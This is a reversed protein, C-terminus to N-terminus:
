TVIKKNFCLIGNPTIDVVGCSNERVSGPNMIYLGDEYATYPTHTHGFLALTAGAERARDKLVQYGFKVMENHGHTCYVKIGGLNEIALAPYDCFSGDCNGKVAVLKKRALSIGVKDLDHVGDGLFIVADVDQTNEVAMKLSIYDGHSDSLVLLRM